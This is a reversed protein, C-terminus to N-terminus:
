FGSLYFYKNSSSKIKLGTLHICILVLFVAYLYYYLVSLNFIGRGTFVVLFVNLQCSLTLRMFNEPVYTCTIINQGSEAIYRVMIIMSCYNSNYCIVCRYNIIYRRKRLDLLDLFLFKSRPSQGEILALEKFRKFYDDMLHIYKKHKSSDLKGGITSLLNCLQECDDDSPNPDRILHKVCM